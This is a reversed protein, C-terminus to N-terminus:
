GWPRPSRVAYLVPLIGIDRSKIVGALVVGAIEEKVDGARHSNGAAARQGRNVPVLGERNNERIRHCVMRTEPRKFTEQRTTIKVEIQRFTAIRKFGERADLAMARHRLLVGTRHRNRAAIRRKSVRRHAPRGPRRMRDAGVRAADQQPPVACTTPLTASQCTEAPFRRVM